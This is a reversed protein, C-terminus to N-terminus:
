GHRDDKLSEMIVETLPESVTSILIVEVMRDVIRKHRPQDEMALQRAVHHAAILLDVMAPSPIATGALWRRITAPSTNLGEALRTQWNPNGRGTKSDQYLGCGIIALIEPSLTTPKPAPTATTM